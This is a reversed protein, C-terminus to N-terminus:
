PYKRLTPRKPPGALWRPGSGITVSGGPPPFTDSVRETALGCTPGAIKKSPVLRLTLVWPVTPGSPDTVLVEVMPSMSTVFPPAKSALGVALPSGATVAVHEVDAVPTTLPETVILLPTSSISM